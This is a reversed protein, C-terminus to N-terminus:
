PRPSGEALSRRCCFPRRAYSGGGGVSRACRRTLVALHLPRLSGYLEELRVGLDLARLLRARLARRYLHERL